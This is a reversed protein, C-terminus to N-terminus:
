FRFNADAYRDKYAFLTGRNLYAEASEGIELALNYDALAKEISEMEFHALGRNNITMPLPSM